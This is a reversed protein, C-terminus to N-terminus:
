SWSAANELLFSAFVAAARAVTKARRSSPTNRLGARCVREACATAGATGAKPVGSGTGEFISGAAAPAGGTCGEGDGDGAAEESMGARQVASFM